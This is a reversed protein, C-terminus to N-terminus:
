WESNRARPKLTGVFVELQQRDVHFLDLCATDLQRVMEALVDGGELEVVADGGEVCEALFEDAGDLDTLRSSAVIQANPRARCM